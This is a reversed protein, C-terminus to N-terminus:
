VFFIFFFIVFKVSSFIFKFLSTSFIFNSNNFETYSYDIKKNGFNRCFEKCDNNILNNILEIHLSKKSLYNTVVQFLIFIIDIIGGMKAILDKLQIFSRYYHNIQNNSTFLVNLIQNSSNDNNELFDFDIGNFEYFNYEKSSSFIFNNM